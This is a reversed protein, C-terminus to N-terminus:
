VVERELDDKLFLPEYGLQRNLELVPANVADNETVVERLQQEAAWRLAALKALTALRRGRFEPLTATWENEARAHARDVALLAVAVVAGGHVVAFSGDGALIPNEIV